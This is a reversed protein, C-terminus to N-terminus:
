RIAGPSLYRSIIRARGDNAVNVARACFNLPFKGVQVLNSSCLCALVTCSMVRSRQTRRPWAAMSKMRILKVRRKSFNQLVRRVATSLGSEIWTVQASSLRYTRVSGKCAKCM